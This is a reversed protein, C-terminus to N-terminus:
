EICYIVLSSVAFLLWAVPFLKRMLMDQLSEQFYIM